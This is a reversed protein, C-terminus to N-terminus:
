TGTAHMHAEHVTSKTPSAAEGIHLMERWKLSAYRIYLSAEPKPLGSPLAEICLHRYAFRIGHQEHLTTTM